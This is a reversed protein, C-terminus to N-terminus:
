GTPPNEPSSAKRARLSLVIGLLLLALGALLLWLSTGSGPEVTPSGTPPLIQPTGCGGPEKILVDASAQRNGQDSILYATNVVVTGDPVGELVVTYVVITVIEGPYVYGIFVEFHNGRITVTGKSTTVERLELYAPLTDSILVNAAPATGINTVIITWEVPDGPYCCGPVGTKSIQPDAIRLAPTPTVVTQGHVHGWSGNFSALILLLGLGICLFGPLRRYVKDEGNKSDSTTPNM